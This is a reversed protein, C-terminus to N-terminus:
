GKKLKCAFRVCRVPSPTPLPLHYLRMSEYLFGGYTSIGFRLPIVVSTVCFPLKKENVFFFMTRTACNVEISVTSGTIIRRQRQSENLQFITGFLEIRYYTETTNFFKIGCDQTRGSGLYAVMCENVDHESTTGFSINSFHNRYILKVSWRYIGTRITLNLFIAKFNDYLRKPELGNTFCVPIKKLGIRPIIFLRHSKWPFTTSCIGFLCRIRSEDYVFSCLRLFVTRGLQILGVGYKTDFESWLRDAPRFQM